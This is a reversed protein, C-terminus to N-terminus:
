ADAAGGAAFTIAVAARAPPLRLACFAYSSPVRFRATVFGAVPRPVGFAHLLVAAADRRYSLTTQLHTAHLFVTPHLCAPERLRPTCAPHLVRWCRTPLHGPHRPVPPPPACLGPAPLALGRLGGRRRWMDCWRLPIAPAPVATPLAAAWSYARQAQLIAAALSYRVFPMRAFRGLADASPRDCGLSPLYFSDHLSFYLIPFPLAAAEQLLLGGAMGQLLTAHCTLFSPLWGAAGVMRLSSPLLAVGMSVAVSDLRLVPMARSGHIVDNEGREHFRGAVAPSTVLSM